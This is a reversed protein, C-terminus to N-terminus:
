TCLAPRKAGPRLCLSRDVPGKGARFRLTRVRTTKGPEHVRVELRTGPRLRAGRVLRLLNLRRGTGRITRRALPCGRGRCTVVATGGRDLGEVVLKLVRSVKGLTTTLITIGASTIEYDADKGDCNEDRGNRPVDVAGPHRSADFDDCDTLETAGDRDADAPIADGGSCDEDVGNGPKDTAGPRIAANHDDCDAPLLSGDRDDDAARFTIQECGSAKDAGDLIARDNGGAGCDATEENIDAMDLTDDGEDGKVLDFAAGGVLTDDGGRGEIENEADNGTLTDAFATGVIGEVDAHVNAGSQPGMADNAVDDLSVTAGAPM